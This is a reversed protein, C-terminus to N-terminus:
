GGLVAVLQLLMRLTTGWVVHDGVRVAPVHRVLEPEVAVPLETVPGLFAAVPFEELHTVESPSLRYGYGPPVRGVVPTVKYSSITLHDDLCGLVTVVSPELGIEEHAERLATAAFDRDKSDRAGGPFSWQGRHHRLTLSRRTLVVRLGSPHFVLPVLVAAPRGDGDPTARDRAGLRRRVEEPELVM